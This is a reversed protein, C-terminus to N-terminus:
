YFRVRRGTITKWAHQQENSLLRERYAKMERQMDRYLSPIKEVDGGIALARLAYKDNMAALFKRLAKQQTASLALSRHAEPFRRLAAVDDYQYILQKLRQFREKGLTKSVRRDLEGTMEAYLELYLEGDPQDGIRYVESYLKDVGNHYATMLLKMTDEEQLSLKLYKTIGSRYRILRVFNILVCREELKRQQDAVDPDDPLPLFAVRDVVPVWDPRDLGRDQEAQTSGVGLLGFGILGFWLTRRM